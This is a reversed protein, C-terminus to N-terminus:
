EGGSNRTSASPLPSAAATCTCEASGISSGAISVCPELRHGGLVSCRFRDDTAAQESARIRRIDQSPVGRLGPEAADPIPLRRRVEDDALDGRRHVGRGLQVQRDLQTATVLLEVHEVLDGSPPRRHRHREAVGTKREVPRRRVQGRPDVAIRRSAAAVSRRTCSRRRRRRRRGPSSTPSCGGTPATTRRRRRRRGTCARSSSGPRGDTRSTGRARDVGIALHGGLEVGVLSRRDEVAGGLADVPQVRRRVRFSVSSDTVVAECRVTGVSLVPDRASTASSRSATCSDSPPTATTTSPTTCRCRNDWMVVDGQGWRHRYVFEPRARARVPVAAVAPERGATMGEFHPM